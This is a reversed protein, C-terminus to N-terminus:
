SQTPRTERYHELRVAGDIPLGVSMNVLFSFFLSHALLTQATTRKGSAM